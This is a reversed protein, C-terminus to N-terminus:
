LLSWKTPNILYEDNSSMDCLNNYKNLFNYESVEKFQEVNDVGFIVKDIEDFSSSFKICAEMKNMNSEEVTKDWLAFLYAWKSFKTPIDKLDMLLLGQLFTSRTHIEINAQHLKDMWGSTKLRTDFVNFPSQVIDIDFNSVINDLESPSYISIGIKSVIREKKLISLAEYIKKGDPGNLDSAKHLLVGYIKNQNLRQLSLAVEKRIWSYINKEFLPINSIKTIVDFSDLNEKGLNKESSGYAIATDLTTIKKLKALKLIESISKQPFTKKSDNAIGYNMGFQVTGLALKNM